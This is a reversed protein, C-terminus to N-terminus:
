VHLINEWFLKIITCACYAVLFIFKCHTIVSTILKLQCLYEVKCAAGSFVTLADYGSYTIDLQVPTYTNLNRSSLSLLIDYVLLFHTGFFYNM